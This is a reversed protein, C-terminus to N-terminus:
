PPLGLVAAAEAVKYVTLGEESVTRVFRPALRDALLLRGTPQDAYGKEGKGLVVQLCINSCAVWFPPNFGFLTKQLIFWDCLYLVLPFLSLSAM